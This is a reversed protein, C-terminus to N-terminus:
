DVYKMDFLQSSETRAWARAPSRDQRLARNPAAEANQQVEHWVELDITTHDPHSVKGRVYTVAGGQPRYLCEVRHPKGTGRVLVGNHQVLAMDVRLMPRPLFFWEGQRVYAKTRRHKRRSRKVRKEDQESLVVQPKLSEMAAFVTTADPRQPLAAAFWHFEDHGCLYRQYRDSARHTVDLLLHRRKRNLDLVKATISGDRPLRLDFLEQRGEAKVDIEFRDADAAVRVDAGIALFNQQLSKAFM